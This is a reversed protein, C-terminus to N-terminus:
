RVTDNWLPRTELVLAAGTTKAVPHSLTDDDDDKMLLWDDNTLLHDWGADIMMMEDEM